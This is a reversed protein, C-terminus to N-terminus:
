DQVCLLFFSVYQIGPDKLLIYRCIIRVPPTRVTRIAHTQRQFLEVLRQRFEDPVAMTENSDKKANRAKTPKFFPKSTEIERENM